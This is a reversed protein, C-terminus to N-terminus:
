SDPDTGAYASGFMRYPKELIHQLKALNRQDDIGVAEVDQRPVGGQHFEKRFATADQCRMEFLEFAQCSLCGSARFAQAALLFEGVPVACHDHELARM